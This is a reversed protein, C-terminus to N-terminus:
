NVGIFARLFVRSVAQWWRTKGGRRAKWRELEELATVSRRLPALGPDAYHRWTPIPM